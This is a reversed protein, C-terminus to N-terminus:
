AAHSNNSINLLSFLQYDKSHFEKFKALFEASPQELYKVGSKAVNLRQYEKVTSDCGTLSIIEPLYTNFQSSNGVLDFESMEYKGMMRSQLNKMGPSFVFTEFDMEGKHVAQCVEGVVSYERYYNFHSSVREYPERIFCFASVNKDTLDFQNVNFHGHIAEYNDLIWDVKKTKLLEPDHNYRYLKEGYKKHLISELSTGATKPIHLSVLFPKNVSTM